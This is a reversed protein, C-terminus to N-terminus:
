NMGVKETSDPKESESKVADAVETTAKNLSTSEM